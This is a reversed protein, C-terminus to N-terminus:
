RVELRAWDGSALVREDGDRRTIGLADLRELFDLVYRRTTQFRDRLIAVTLSEGRELRGRVFDIWERLVDPRLLVESSIRVFEGQEILSGLVAEGVIEGAQTITPPAYPEREFALM